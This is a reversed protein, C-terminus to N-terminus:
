EKPFPPSNMQAKKLCQALNIINVQRQGDNALLILSRQNIGM